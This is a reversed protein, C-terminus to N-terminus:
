DADEIFKVCPHTRPMVGVDALQGALKLSRRARPSNAPLGWVNIAYKVGDHLKLSLMYPAHATHSPQRQDLIEAVEDYWLEGNITKSNRLSKAEVAVDQFFQYCTHCYISCGHSYREENSHLNIRKRLGVDLLTLRGSSKYPITM